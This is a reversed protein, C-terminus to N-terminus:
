ACWWMQEECADYGSFCVSITDYGICLVPFWLGSLDPSKGIAVPKSMPVYPFGVLGVVTSDPNWGPRWACLCEM